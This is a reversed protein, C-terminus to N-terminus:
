RGSWTADRGLLHGQPAHQQDIAESARGFPGHDVARLDSPLTHANFSMRQSPVALDQRFQTTSWKGPQKQLSICREVADVAVM